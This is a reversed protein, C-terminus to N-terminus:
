YRLWKIIFIDTPLSFRKSYVDMKNGSLDTVIGGAEEIILKCSGYGM